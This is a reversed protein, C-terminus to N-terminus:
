GGHGCYITHDGRMPMIRRLSDYLQGADGGPLDTRGYGDHFLTDGTFLRDGLEYCVGGPTHGPTHHVRFDMGAFTVHDGEAVTKTPAPATIHQGIMWSVNLGPDKLMPADSAHIVLECGSHMLEGAAAMHDFHGHTLLIAAISKGECASLIREADGGPDVVVCDDRGDMSIIYCNTGLMGVPLQVVRIHENMSM